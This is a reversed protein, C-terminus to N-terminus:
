FKFVSASEACLPLVDHGLVIFHELLFQIFAIFVELSLNNLDAVEYEDLVHNRM